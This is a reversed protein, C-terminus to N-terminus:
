IFFFGLIKTTADLYLSGNSNTLDANLSSSLFLAILMLYLAASFSQWDEKIASFFDELATSYNSLKLLRLLRLVRLWRLDVGGFFIPLISPLIAVLDIIGNFSFIYKLRKKILNKSITEANASASWVRLFYEISFIVVSITEFIFFEYGFSDRISKVSELCVATVNLLILIFLFIDVLRSQLDTSSGRSLLENTRIQIKHYKNMM